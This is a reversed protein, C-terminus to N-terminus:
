KALRSAPKWERARKQAEAIQTPTMSKATEDRDKASKSDGRAAALSFWMLAQVSDRPIGRGISYQLALSSQALAYGQEAALRYWKVAEADNRPVGRGNAYMIGLNYQALVHGQTAALAVWKAAEADNRDIGQGKAYRLALNFQAGAHGKEAALRYWKVAELAGKAEYPTFAATSVCSAAPRAM